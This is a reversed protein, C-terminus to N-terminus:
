ALADMLSEVDLHYQPMGTGPTFQRIHRFNITSPLPSFSKDGLRCLTPKAGLMLGALQTKSSDAKGQLIAIAITSEKFTTQGFIQRDADVIPM